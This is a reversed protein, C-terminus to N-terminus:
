VPTTAAPQSKMASARSQAMGPFLLESLLTKLQEEDLNRGIFRGGEAVSIAGTEESVVVAVADVEESIGLAARHRTGYSSDAPPNQALPLICRAAVVTDGSVIVAGDHLPTRPYFISVLFEWSLEAGLSVGTEVVGRVGTTRQIVMLAGFRRSSLEVAAKAVQAAVRQEGTRFLTRLLGFQGIKVLMRRLEPQFLIVFAIVWVAGISQILWTMGSMGILQALSGTILLLLLGAFMQTARTGRMILWVQYFVVAVAVVDFLDILTVTLFGIRFLDM